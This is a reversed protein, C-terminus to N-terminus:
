LGSGVEPQQVERVEWKEAVKVRRQVNRVNQPLHRHMTSMITVLKKDKWQVCLIENMRTWRMDGREAQKAWEKSTDKMDRPFHKRNPLITGTVFTRLKYLDKLLQVSTYFNDIYVCYGQGLYEELLDFVVTYGLGHQLRNGDQKGTYVFFNSTYGTDADALVWLKFGWKVPKDKIYQRMGSRGKSKVMREDISISRGPQFLLLCKERIFDLCYKVATLKGETRRNEKEHDVVHLFQLIEEFRKQEETNTKSKSTVNVRRPINRAGRRPCTQSAAREAM